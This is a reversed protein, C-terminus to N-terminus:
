SNGNQMEKIIEAKISERYSKEKEIKRKDEEEGVKYRVLFLPYISSFAHVLVMIIAAWGYQLIYIFGIVNFAIMLVLAITAYIKRDLLIGAILLTPYFLITWLVSSCICVLIILGIFTDLNLANGLLNLGWNFLKSILFYVICWVFLFGIFKAFSKMSAGEM